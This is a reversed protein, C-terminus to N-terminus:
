LRIPVLQSLDPFLFVFFIPRPEVCAPLPMGRVDNRQAVDSALAVAMKGCGHM